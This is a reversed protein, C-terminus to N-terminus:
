QHRAFNPNDGVGLFRRTVFGTRNASTTTSRWPRADASLGALLQLEDGRRELDDDVLSHLVGAFRAVGVGPARVDGEGVLGLLRDVFTQGTGAQERVDDGALEAVVQREVSEFLDELTLLDVDGAARHARPHEGARVQDLRQDIQHAIAHPLRLHDVGVVGAHRHLILVHLALALAAPDPGVDAVLMVGVDDVVVRGVSGAGPRARPEGVEFAIKLGVGVAPVVADVGLAIHGFDCAPSVRAALEEVGFVGVALSRGLHQLEDALEVGDFVLRLCQVVIGTAVQSMLLAARDELLDVDPEGGETGARHDEWAARHALGDSVGEVLPGCEAPVSVFAEQVDVVVGGFAGQLPDVDAALVPEEGTVVLGTCAVGAEVTQDGAGVSVAEIRLLIEHGDQGLDSLGLQALDVLEQRLLPPRFVRSYTRHTPVSPIPSAQGDEARWPVLQPRGFVTWWNSPM